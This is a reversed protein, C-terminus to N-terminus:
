KRIQLRGDDLLKFKLISIGLVKGQRSSQDQTATSSPDLVPIGDPLVLAQFISDLSKHSVFLNTSAAPAESRLTTLSRLPKGLLVSTLADIEDEGVPTAPDYYNKQTNTGTIYYSKVELKEMLQNFSQQLSDSAQILTNWQSPYAKKLDSVISQNVACGIFGEPSRIWRQYAAPQLRAYSAVGEAYGQANQDDVPQGVINPVAPLLRPLDGRNLWDDDGAFPQLVASAKAFKKREEQKLNQRFGKILQLLAALTKNREDDTKAEINSKAFRAQRTPNALEASLRLFLNGIALATVPSTKTVNEGAIMQRVIQSLFIARKMALDAETGSIDDVKEVDDLMLNTEASNSHFAKFDEEAPNVNIISVDRGCREPTCDVVEYPALAELDQTTKASATKGKITRCAVFLTGVACCAFLWRTKSTLPNLMKM